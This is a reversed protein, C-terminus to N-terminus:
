FYLNPPPPVVRRSVSRAALALQYMMNSTLAGHRPRCPHQCDTVRKRSACGHTEVNFDAVGAFAARARAVFVKGGGGGPVRGHGQLAHDRGVVGLQDVVVPAAVVQFAAQSRRTGAREHCHHQAGLAEGQRM